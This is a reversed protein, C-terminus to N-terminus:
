FFSRLKEISEKLVTYEAKGNDKQHHIQNRIFTHRSVQNHEGKYSSDRLEGKEGVLFNRDFEKIGKDGNSYRLEEYLENHYEETALDFAIFNVENASLYPLKRKEPAAVMAGQKLVMVRVRESEMIQKVLLPSHTTLFVQADKSAELLFDILKAQLAPHLHLEPEDILVIFQKKSQQSLYYSYLLAFIMEYGSGLNSLPIQQNNDKLHAFFAESYPMHNDLFDLDLRIGSMEHFETFAATLFENEVKGAKLKEDLDTNLNEIAGSKSHYQYSFDEMLRDFRTTNYNGSRTQFLRNKDLYIVDNEAFRKGSFPNNVSVRLDVSGEKPQDPDSPIYQQDSVAMSSLYGSARKSRLGGIFRFGKGTFNKNPMTGKFQFENDALLDIETKQGTNNLDSLCFQEAKYDLLPLAIADLLSTKGSGNEGVFVNLGSGANGDPVNLADLEFPPEAGFLRYNKITVNSIFM